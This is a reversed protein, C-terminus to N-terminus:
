GNRRPGGGVSEDHTERRFGGTGLHAERVAHHHYHVGLCLPHPYRSWRRRRAASLVPVLVLLLLLAM